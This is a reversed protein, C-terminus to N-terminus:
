FSHRSSGKKKGPMTERRESFVQPFTHYTIYSKNDAIIQRTEMMTSAQWVTGLIVTVQLKILYWSFTIKAHESKGKYKFILSCISLDDQILKYNSCSIIMIWPCDACIKMIDLLTKVSWMSDHAASAARRGTASGASTCSLKLIDIHVQTLLSSM